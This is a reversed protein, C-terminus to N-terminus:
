YNSFYSNNLFFLLKSANFTQCIIIEFKRANLKKRSGTNGPFFDLFDSSKSSSFTGKILLKWMEAAM